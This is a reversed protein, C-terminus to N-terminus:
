RMAVIYAVIKRSLRLANARGQILTIASCEETAARDSRLQCM